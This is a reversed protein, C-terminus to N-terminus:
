RNKGKDLGTFIKIGKPPSAKKIVMDGTLSNYRKWVKTTENKIKEVQKDFEFSVYSNLRIFIAFLLIVSAIVALGFLGMCISLVMESLIQYSSFAIAVCLMPISFLALSFIFGYYLEYPKVYALKMQEDVQKISKIIKITRERNAVALEKKLSEFKKNLEIIAPIRTSLFHQIKPFITAYIVVLLTIGIIGTEIIFFQIQLPEM